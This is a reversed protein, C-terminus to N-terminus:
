LIRLPHPSPGGEDAQLGIDAVLWNNIQRIRVQGVNNVIHGVLRPSLQNLNLECNGQGM